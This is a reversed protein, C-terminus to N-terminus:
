RVDLGYPNTRRLYNQLNEEFTLVFYNLKSLFRELHIEIIRTSLAILQPIDTRLITWTVMFCEM